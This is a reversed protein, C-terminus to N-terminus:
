KDHQECACAAGAYSCAACATVQVVQASSWLRFAFVLRFAMLAMVPGDTGMVFCHHASTM